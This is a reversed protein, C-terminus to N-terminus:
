APRTRMKHRGWSAEYCDRFEEATGSPYAPDGVPCVTGPIPDLLHGTAAAGAGGAIQCNAIDGAGVFVVPEPEPPIQLRVAADQLHRSLAPPGLGALVPSTGILIRALSVHGRTGPQGPM